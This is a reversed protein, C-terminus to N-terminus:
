RKIEKKLSKSKKLHPFAIAYYQDALYNQVFAANSVNNETDVNVANNGISLQKVETLPLVIIPKCATTRAFVNM